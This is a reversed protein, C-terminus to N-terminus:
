KFEKFIGASGKDRVGINVLKSKGTKLKASPDDAIAPFLRSPGRLGVESLRTHEFPQRQNWKGCGTLQVGKCSHSVGPLHPVESENYM